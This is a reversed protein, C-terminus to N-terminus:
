STWARHVPSTPTRWTTWLARAIRFEYLVHLDDIDSFPMHLAIVFRPKKADVRRASGACYFSEDSPGLLSHIAFRGSRDLDRQKPSEIVFAWLGGDHVMPIFPHIRPVGDMGVTGLFAVGPIGPEDELLREGASSLEPASSAFVAWPAGLPDVPDNYTRPWTFSRAPPWSFDERHHTPSDM